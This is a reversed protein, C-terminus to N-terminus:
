KETKESKKRAVRLATVKNRHEKHSQEYEKIKERNDIRYQKKYALMKERNAEAYVRNCETEREKNLLYYERRRESKTKSM